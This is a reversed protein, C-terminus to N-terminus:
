NKKQKRIEKKKEKDIGLIRVKIVENESLVEQPTRTYAWSMDSIHLLGNLGEELEIFAGFDKISIVKGEVEDGVSYRKEVEEWPNPNLQKISLSIKKKEKDFDIVKVKIQRIIKNTNKHTKDGKGYIAREVSM